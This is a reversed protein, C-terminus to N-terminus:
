LRAPIRLVIGEVSLDEDIDAWHVAPGLGIVEGNKGQRVTARNLRPYFQLPVKIERGDGLAVCPSDDTFWITTAVFEKESKRASSSM